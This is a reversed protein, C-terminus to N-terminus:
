KIGAQRVSAIVRSTSQSYHIPHLGKAAGPARAKLFRSSMVAANFRHREGGRHLAKLRPGDQAYFGEICAGLQLASSGGRVEARGALNLCIELGQPHFSRTRDLDGDAIFDHWALSYGQRRFSCSLQHWGPGVSEWAPAESYLGPQHIAPDPLCNTM